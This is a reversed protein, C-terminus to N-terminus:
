IYTFQPYWCAPRAWTQTNRLAWYRPAMILPTRHNLLSPLIYFASNAIILNKAYRVSRWNIGIDQTYTTDHPVLPALMERARAPDDTHVEFEKVGQAAMRDIATQWYERPLYLDPVTAYEGGRFGIVCADNAPIRPEVALWKDITKLNHGWYKSDEFTGDIITNDEIFNIEPDYSRIDVGKEWVEKENWEREFKYFSPHNGMDLNMFGRGKFNEPNIMGFMYGKSEALTRVTIYRHLQDGLGSGQHLRGCIM